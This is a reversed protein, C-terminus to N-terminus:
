CGMTLPASFRVCMLFRSLTIEMIRNVNYWPIEPMDGENMVPWRQSDTKMHTLTSFGYPHICGVRFTCEEREPWKM